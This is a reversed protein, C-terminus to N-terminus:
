GGTLQDALQDAVRRGWGLDRRWSAPCSTLGGRRRCGGGLRARGVGEAGGVPLAVPSGGGAGGAPGRAGAGTREHVVKEGGVTPYRPRNFHGPRAPGRRLTTADKGARQAGMQTLQDLYIDHRHGHDLSIYHCQHVKRVMGGESGARRGGWTGWWSTVGRRGGGRWGGGVSRAPAMQGGGEGPGKM